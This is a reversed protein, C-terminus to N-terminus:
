AVSRWRPPKDPCEEKPRSTKTDLDCGCLICAELGPAYYQCCVCQQLRQIKIIISVRPRGDLWWQLTKICYLLFHKMRVM